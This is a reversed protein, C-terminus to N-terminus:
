RVLQAGVISRLWRWSLEGTAHERFRIRARDLDTVTGWEQRLGDAGAYTLLVPCGREYATLLVEGPSEGDEDEEDEEDYPDEELAKGVIAEIDSVPLGAEALIRALERAADARPDSPAHEGSAKGSGADGPAPLRSVLHGPPSERPSVDPPTPRWWSAPPEAVPRETWTGSVRDVGDELEVGAQRVARAVARLDEGDVALLTPSLREVLTAGLALALREATQEEPAAIMMASRLRVRRPAQRAWDRVTEEVNQPLTGALSRLRTVADIDARVAAHVRERTIRMVHERGSVPEAVSLLAAREGPTSPRLSVLEFDAQAVCPPGTPEDVQAPIFVAAVPEGGADAVLGLEGRLWRELVAHLGLFEDAVGVGPAPPQKGAELFFAGVAVGLDHLAISRGALAELLQELMERGPIRARSLAAAVLASREALSGSCLEAFDAALALERKATAGPLSLDRVRLAGCEELVILALDRRLEALDPLRLPLPALAAALRSGARAFLEGDAKIQVGGAVILSAITAADHLIQEPVLVVARDADLDADPVRAAHARVRIRRLPEELELPTCVTTGWHTQFSFLLGHRELEALAAGDLSARGSSWASAAAFATQTVLGRAGADLGAVLTGLADEDRLVAAIAAPSDKAAGIAQAVARRHRAGLAALGPELAHRPLRAATASAPM